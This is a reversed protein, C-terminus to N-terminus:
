LRAGLRAEVEAVNDHEALDALEERVVARVKQKREPESRALLDLLKAEVDPAAKEREACVPCGGRTFPQLDALLKVASVRAAENNGALAREIAGKVLDHDLTRLAEVLGERQGEPLREGIGLRRGKGGKSGIARMDTRGSHASCLGDAGALAECKTGRKTMASCRTGNLRKEGSTAM